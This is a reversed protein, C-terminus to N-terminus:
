RVGKIRDAECANKSFYWRHGGVQLCQSGCSMIELVEFSGSGLGLPGSLTLMGMAYEYKYTLEEKELRRLQGEFENAENTEIKWPICITRGEYRDLWFLKGQRSLSGFTGERFALKSVDLWLGLEGWSSYYRLRLWGGPEIKNDAFFINNQKVYAVVSGDPGDRLWSGKTIAVRNPHTEGHGHGSLEQPARKSSENKPALYMKGITDAKLWGSKGTTTRVRVFGNRSELREVASGVVLDASNASASKDPAPRLATSKVIVSKLSTNPFYLLVRVPGDEVIVRPLRGPQIVVLEDPLKGPRGVVNGAVKPDDPMLRVRKWSAPRVRIRYRTQYGDALAQKGPDEFIRPDSKSFSASLIVLLSAFGFQKFSKIRRM